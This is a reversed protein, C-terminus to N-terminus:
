VDTQEAQKPQLYGKILASMVTVEEHTVTVQAIVLGLKARKVEVHYELRQDPLVERSWKAKDVGTLLVWHDPRARLAWYALTQAAGEILLVGPTIPRQPFHGDFLPNFSRFTYVGVVHREECRIVEDLFLFPDRHPIVERPPPFEPAEARPSDTTSTM